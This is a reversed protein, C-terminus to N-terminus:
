VIKRLVRLNHTLINKKQRKKNEMGTNYDGFQLLCIDLALAVV